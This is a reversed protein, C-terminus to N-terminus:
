ENRSIEWLQEKTPMDNFHHVLLRREGNVYSPITSIELASAQALDAKYASHVTEDELQKRFAAENLGVQKALSVLTETDSIDKKEAWHAKFVAEIFRDAVGMKEAAKTALQAPVTDCQVPASLPTNMERALEKLRIKGAEYYGEPKPPPTVNSPMKWVYYRIKVGEKALDFITQSGLYCWPCAYDFYFDLRNM